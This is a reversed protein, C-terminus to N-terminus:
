PHFERAMEELADIAVPSPVQIGNDVFYVKGAQIAPLSSWGPRNRLTDISIKGGRILLLADPARAISENVGSAVADVTGSVQYGDVCPIKPAEPNL